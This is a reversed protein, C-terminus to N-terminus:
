RLTIALVFLPFCDPERNSRNRQDQLWQQSAYSPTNLNNVPFVARNTRSLEKVLSEGWRM